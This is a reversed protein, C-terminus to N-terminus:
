HTYCQNYREISKKKKNEDVNQHNGQIPTWFYRQHICAEPTM